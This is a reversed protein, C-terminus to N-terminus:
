AYEYIPGKDKVLPLEGSWAKAWTTPDDVTFQYRIM